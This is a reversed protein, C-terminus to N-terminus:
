RSSRSERYLQLWDSLRMTVLWPSRSKRHFVAPRGDQFKRSDRTAQEVLQEVRKVEVHIGPLGSIDPETGYNLPAGPKTDYGQERFIRCLELEGDRGKRQSARGGM